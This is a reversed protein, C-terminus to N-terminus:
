RGRDMATLGRGGEWPLIGIRKVIQRVAATASQAQEFAASVGAASLTTSAFIAAGAAVGAAICILSVDHVYVSLSPVFTSSDTSALPLYTLVDVAPFCTSWPLAQTCSSLTQKSLAISLSPSDQQVALCVSIPWDVSTVLSLPSFSVTVRM